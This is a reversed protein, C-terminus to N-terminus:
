KQEQKPGLINQLSLILGLMLVCNVTLVALELGFIPQYRYIGVFSSIVLLVAILGFFIMSLINSMKALKVMAEKKSAIYYILFLIMAVLLFLSVTLFGVSDFSIDLEGFRGSCYIAIIFSALTLAGISIFCIGKTFVPRKTSLASLMLVFLVLEVIAIGVPGSEANNVKSAVEILVISLVSVFIGTIALIIQPLVSRKFEM